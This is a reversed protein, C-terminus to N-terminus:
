NKQREVDSQAEVVKNIRKQTAVLEDISAQLKELNHKNERRLGRINVWIFFPALLGLLGITLALLLLVGENNTETM